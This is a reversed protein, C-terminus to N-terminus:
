GLNLRSSAHNEGVGKVPEGRLAVPLFALRENVAERQRLGAHRADVQGDRLKVRANVASIGVDVQLRHQADIGVNLMAVQQLELVNAARGGIGVHLLCAAGGNVLKRAVLLAALDDAAGEAVCAQVADHEHPAAHVEGDGLFESLALM